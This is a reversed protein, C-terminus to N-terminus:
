PRRGLAQMFNRGNYGVLGTIGPAANRKGADFMLEALDSDTTGLKATSVYSIRIM